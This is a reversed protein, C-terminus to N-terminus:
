VNVPEREESSEAPAATRERPKESYTQHTDKLLLFFVNHDHCFFGRVGELTHVFEKGIFDVEGDIEGIIPMYDEMILLNTDRSRVRVISINSYVQLGDRFSSVQAQIRGSSRSSYEDLQASLGLDRHQTRNKSDAM